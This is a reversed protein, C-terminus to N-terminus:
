EKIGKEREVGLLRLTHTSQTHAMTVAKQMYHQPMKKVVGPLRLSLAVGDDKELCQESM